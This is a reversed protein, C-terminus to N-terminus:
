VLKCVASATFGFRLRRAAGNAVCTWAASPCDADSTCEIAALQLALLPPDHDSFRFPTAGDFYAAPRGFDLNYDFSDPEDANVHWVAAGAVSSALSQDVLSWDLSGSRGDFLYSRPPPRADLDEVSVFGGDTVLYQVPDEQAYANLDGLFVVSDTQVGTPKTDLWKKVAQAGLLRRNNFNAAGDKQDADLGSGSGGKSKLHNVVVTVPAGNSKLAFTAALPSRSTSSGTFLAGGSASLLASDAAAYHITDTSTWGATDDVLSAAVGVMDVVNSDYFIDVRIADTGVVAAAVEHSVSKYARGPNAANLRACLESGSSEATAVATDATVGFPQVGDELPGNELECIAFIDADILSLATTTKAAQRDFEAVSDAGRAWSTSSGLHLTLFYNLVNSTAIVLNHAKSFKPPDVPRPNKETIELSTAALVSWAGFEFSLPGTVAVANGVRVAGKFAALDAFGGVLIPDPNQVSRGDDIKLCALDYAANDAAFGAADPTNVQTFTFLRGDVNEAACVIISGFRDLEFHESVVVSSDAAAPVVRVLMGEMAEYADESSIPLSLVAATAIAAIGACTAPASPAVEFTADSLQTRGFKEFVTGKVNLVAGVAPKTATGEVYIGESTEVNGDDEGDSTQLFFGQEVIATVVACCIQVPLGSLPSTETSGQIQSIPVCGAPGEEPPVFIELDPHPHSGLNSFDDQALVLWECTAEASSVAWNPEGETVSSIRVLTADQTTGKGCVDWASGVDPGFDGICDLTEFDAETGKVLCVGDDGNSLSNFTEDCVTPVAAFADSLSHCIVYVDGAAVVAGPEFTNFFEYMGDAGNSARTRAYDDLAVEADGSNYIELFKNNSSGEGYESFFLAARAGPLGLALLTVAAFM